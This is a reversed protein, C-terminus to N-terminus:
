ALALGTRGVVVASNDSSNMVITVLLEAACLERIGAAACFDTSKIEIVFICFM